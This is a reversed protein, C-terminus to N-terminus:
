PGTGAISDDGPIIFTDDAFSDDASALSGDDGVNAYGLIITAKATGSNLLVAVAPATVAVQAAGKVFARRTKDEAMVIERM